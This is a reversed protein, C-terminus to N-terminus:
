LDERARRRNCGRERELNRREREDVGHSRGRHVDDFSGDSDRGGDTSKGRAHGVGWVDVKASALGSSVPVSMAM